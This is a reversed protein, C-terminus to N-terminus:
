LNNVLYKTFYKKYDSLRVCWNPSILYNYKLSIEKITKGECKYAWNKLSINIEYDSHGDERSQEIFKYVSFILDSYDKNAM